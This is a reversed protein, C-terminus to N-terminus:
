AGARAGLVRSAHAYVTARPPRLFAVLTVGLEVALDVALSTPASVAAVLPIRAVAAKQIIEFGARGSVLLAHASPVRGARAFAGIVADTANHRGVDERLVALTGAEDFLAAAHLGGTEDWTPQAARMVAPLRALYAPPFPPPGSAPAVLPGARVRLAEITGKGCIGCSSAAYFVRKGREVDARAGPVLSVDVVNPVARGSADRAPGVGAIEAPEVLVAETLLFGVALDEDHGPTRMTVAVPAGEVRIELPEEVVVRDLGSAPGDGVLRVAPRAVSSAAVEAVGGVPLRRPAPRASM